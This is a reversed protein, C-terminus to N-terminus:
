LGLLVFGVLVLPFRAHVTTYRYIMYGDKKTMWMQTLTQKVWNQTHKIIKIQNQEYWVLEVVCQIHMEFGSLRKQNM